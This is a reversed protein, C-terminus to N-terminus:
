QRDGFKDKLLKELVEVRFLCQKKLGKNQFKDANKARQKWDYLEKEMEKSNLKGFRLELNKGEIVWYFDAQQQLLENLKAKFQLFKASKTQEEVGFNELQNLETSLTRLQGQLWGQNSLLSSLDTVSELSKNLDSQNRIAVKDKIASFRNILVELKALWKEVNM